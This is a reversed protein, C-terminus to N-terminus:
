AKFLEQYLFSVSEQVKQEAAQAIAIQEYLAIYNLSLEKKQSDEKSLSQIGHYARLVMMAVFAAEDTAAEAIKQRLARKLASQYSLFLAERLFNLIVAGDNTMQFCINFLNFPLSEAKFILLARM